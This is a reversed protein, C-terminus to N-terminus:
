NPQGILTWTSAGRRRYYIGVSGALTRFYLVGPTSSHPVETGESQQEEINNQLERVADEDDPNTMLLTRGVRNIIPNDGM